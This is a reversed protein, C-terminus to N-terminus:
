KMLHLLRCEKGLNVEVVVVIWTPFPCYTLTKNTMGTINVIWVVSKLDKYKDRFNM